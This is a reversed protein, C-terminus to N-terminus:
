ILKSSIEERLFWWIYIYVYGGAGLVVVKRRRQFADRNESGREVGREHMGEYNRLKEM